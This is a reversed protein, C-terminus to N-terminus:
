PNPKYANLIADEIADEVEKLITKKTKHQKSKEMFLLLIEHVYYQLQKLEEQEFIIDEAHHVYKSRVDYMTKIIRIIEKRKEPDTALLKSAYKSVSNVIPVNYDFVLLSDLISILDAIREWYAKGLADSFKELARLLLNQLKTPPFNVNAIFDEYKRLGRSEIKKLEEENITFPLSKASSSISLEGESGDFREVLLEDFQIRSKSELEFVLKSKPDDLTNSCIRLLFMAIECRIFIQERAREKESLIACTAYVRGQYDKRFPEVEKKQNESANLYRNFFEDDLMIFEVGTITLRITLSLNIVPFYIKYKSLSNKMAEVIFDTFNQEAKGNQKSKLLWEITIRRITRESIYPIVEPTEFIDKTLKMYRAYSEQDLVLPKHLQPPLKPDIPNLKVLELLEHAEKDFHSLRHKNIEMFM